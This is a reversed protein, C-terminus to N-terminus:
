HSTVLSYDKTACIGLVKPGTHVGIVSDIRILEIEQQPYKHHISARLMEAKEPNNGYGVVIKTSYDLSDIFNISSELLKNIARKGTRSTGIFKLSNSKVHIVPKIKMKNILSGALKSARGGNSLYSLDNLAAFAITHDRVDEIHQIIEEVSAGEDVLRKAELVVYRAPITVLQSDIVTIKENDIENAVAHITQFTGSLRADMHISIIHDYKKILDTYLDITDAVSPQSTTPIQETAVIKEYFDKTSLDVGERFVTEGFIIQLPLVYIDHKEALEPTINCASDTVIAIKM